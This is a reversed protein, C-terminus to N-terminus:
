LNHMSTLAEHKPTKIFVATTEAIKLIYLICGIVSRNGRISSWAETEQQRHSDITRLASLDLPPVGLPRQRSVLPPPPPLTRYVGGANAASEPQNRPSLHLTRDSSWKQSLNSHMSSSGHVDGFETVRSSDLKDHSVSKTLNTVGLTNIRNHSSSKGLNSVRPSVGYISGTYTLNAPIEELSEASDSHYDRAPAAPRIAIGSPPPPLIAVPPVQVDLRATFGRPTYLDPHDVLCFLFLSNYCM